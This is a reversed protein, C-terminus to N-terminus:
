PTVLKFYNSGNFNEYKSFDIPNGLPFNKEKNTSVQPIGNVLSYIGVAIAEAQVYKYNKMRLYDYKNNLYALEIYASIANIYTPITWTSLYPKKLEPLKKYTFVGNKELGLRVYRLIENSAYLNDGGYGEIGNERRWKEPESKERAWFISNLLNEDLQGSNKLPSMDPRIKDSYIWSVYNQRLGRYKDTDATFGDKQSWYGSFYIWADCLFWEFLTREGGNNFWDAYFSNNFDEKIKNQEVPNAKLYELAIKYTDYGPTIVSSLAGYKETQGTTLHISVVLHPKLANIRSITGPQIQGSNIDPYDYLRYSGNIDRKEESYFDRYGSKRSLFVAIDTQDKKEKYNYKKLIKQFKKRGTESNLSNLLNQIIKAIEYTEINEELGQYSAGPRYADLYKGTEPDYKDGYVSNPALHKGGHGPDIVVIFPEAFITLTFFLQVLFFLIWDPVPNRLVIKLM